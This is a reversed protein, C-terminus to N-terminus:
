VPVSVLFPEAPNEGRQLLVKGENVQQLFASFKRAVEYPHQCDIIEVFRLSAAKQKYLVETRAVIEAGTKHIDFPPRSDQENM